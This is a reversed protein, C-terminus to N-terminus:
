SEAASGAPLSAAKSARRRAGIRRIQRLGRDFIIAGSLAVAIGLAGIVALAYKTRVDVYTVSPKSPSRETAIQSKKWVGSEDQPGKAMATIDATIADATAIVDEPNEKVIEVTLSPSNFNTQWQGGASPLYVAVADRLGTGFLPARTPLIPANPHEGEYMRQILAAYHVTTSAETRLANGKTAGNPAQFDINFKTYYVGPVNMALQAAPAVLALLLIAVYWRRRLAGSVRSLGTHEGIGHGHNAPDALEPSVEQSINWHAGCLGLMLFLMGSSQPFHFADFFACLLSGALVAGCLAPGLAGILPDPKRRRMFTTLMAVGILGLFALLGVIGIEILLGIYQNDFIRYEPSMTGLGRGFFPSAEVYGGVVAFSDTRSDVSPDSGSFMGIITGSLGPVLFYLVVAGALGAWVAMRRVNKEWTPVLIVLVAVIGLLASRTVSLFAAMFIASVPFWRAIVSRKTERIALTLAIPLVMSLVAAYELAHRATSEPRVFGGRSDVGGSGGSSLGPISISDVINLGTFFQFLGLAAYCGGLFAIRRLLVLFRERDAIGDNTVLLVGAFSAINILNMNSSNGDVFPLAHLAGVVYSALVCGVFMFMMIRVPQVRRFENPRLQRIHHWVWWLLMVLAFLSSVSGAAGMAAIGRDSPIALLLVLYISLVTTADPSQFLGSGAPRMAESHKMTLTM